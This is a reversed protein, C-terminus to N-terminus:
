LFESLLLYHLNPRFARMLPINEERSIIVRNSLLLIILQSKPDIWLSTGTFGLHGISGTPMIESCSWYDAQGDKYDWGLARPTLPPKNQNTIMSKLSPQSLISQDSYDNASILFSCLNHIAKATGFLGSNGGEGDFLAANEDHVIGHLTKKRIPCYGTPVIELNLQSNLPNFVLHRLGLPRYIHDQCYDNLTMGSIRRVIEGLAIYGLCSYVMSKGPLYVLPITFLKEWGVAQEFNPEYLAAWDPLGSTHTLLHKITVQESGPQVFGPIYQCLLDDFKLKNQEVLHLIAISTALPKTLSALDFLSNKKLITESEHPLRHGFVEHFLVFRGRAVLIEIGPFVNDAIASNVLLSLKEEFRLEPM